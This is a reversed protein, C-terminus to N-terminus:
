QASPPQFHQTYIVYDCEPRFSSAIILRHAPSCRWFSSYFLASEQLRSPSTCSSSHILLSFMAKKPPLIRFWLLPHQFDGLCCALMVKDAQLSMVECLMLCCWWVGDTHFKALKLQYCFKGWFRSGGYFLSKNEERGESWFKAFGRFYSVKLGVARSVRHGSFVTTM